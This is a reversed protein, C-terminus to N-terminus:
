YYEITRTDREIEIMVGSAPVWVYVSRSTWNDHADRSYKIEAKEDLINDFNYHEERDPELNGEGQTRQVVKELRGSGEEDFKYDVCLRPGCIGLSDSSSVKPKFGNDYWNSLLNGDSSIALSWVLHGDSDYSWRDIRNKDHSMRTRADSVVVGSDDYIKWEEDGDPLKLGESSLKGDNRYARFAALNGREDFQNVERGVVKSDQLHMVERSGDPMIARQERSEQQLGASDNCVKSGDAEFTCKSVAVINDGSSGSVFEIRRGGPDFVTWDPHGEVFLKRPTGSRPDPNPKAVTTRVSRVPGKFGINERETWQHSEQGESLVAAMSLLLVPIARLVLTDATARSLSSKFHTM